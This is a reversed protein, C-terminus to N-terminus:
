QHVWYATQAASRGNSLIQPLWIAIIVTVLFALPLAWLINKSQYRNREAQKNLIRLWAAPVSFLLGVIAAWVMTAVTDDIQAEIYFTEPSIALHAVLVSIGSITLAIAAYHVSFAGLLIELAFVAGTFPM